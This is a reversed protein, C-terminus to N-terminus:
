CVSKELLLNYSDSDGLKYILLNAKTVVVIMERGISADTLLIESSPIGAPVRPEHPMSCALAVVLLTLLLLKNLKIAM